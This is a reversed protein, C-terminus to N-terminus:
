RQGKRLGALLLRAETTGHENLMDRLESLPMYFGITGAKVALIPDREELPLSDYSVWRTYSVSTLNVAEPPLATQEFYTDNGTPAVQDPTIGILSPIYGSPSSKSTGVLRYGNLFM